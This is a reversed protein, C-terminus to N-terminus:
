ELHRSSLFYSHKEVTPGIYKEQRIKVFGLILGIAIMPGSAASLGLNLLLTTHFGVLYSM